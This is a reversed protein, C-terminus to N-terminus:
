KGGDPKTAVANTPTNAAAANTTETTNTAAPRTSTTTGGVYGLARLRRLEESSLQQVTTADDPLQAALANTKWTVLTEGIGKLSSARSEMKIVNTQDLSDVPHEYLEEVANTDTEKRVLKLGHEIIGFHPKETRGEPPGTQGPERGVMAQTIAPREQWTAVGSGNLLPVLSRGQMNTPGTIGVLELITPMIDLNQVMQDVMVGKRIDPSNPWHFVMPVQNLEGYV